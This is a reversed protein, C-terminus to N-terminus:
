TSSPLLVCPPARTCVLYINQLLIRGSLQWAHRGRFAAAAGACWGDHGYLRQSQWSIGAAQCHEALEALRGVGFKIATPYSWNRNPVSHTM